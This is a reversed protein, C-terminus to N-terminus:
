FGKSLLWNKVDEFRDGKILIAHTRPNVAVDERQVNLDKALETAMLQRDGHIRRILTLKRNGGSKWDRYVPLQQYPTRLVMYPGKELEEITKIRPPQPAKM